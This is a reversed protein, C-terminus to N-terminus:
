TWWYENTGCTNEDVNVLKKKKEGCPSFRYHIIGASEWNNWIRWNRKKRWRFPSVAGSRISTPIELFSSGRRLGFKTSLRFQSRTQCFLSHFFALLSLLEHRWEWYTWYFISRFSYCIVFFYFFPKIRNSTTDEVISNVVQLLQSMLPRLQLRCNSESCCFFIPCQTSLQRECERCWRHIRVLCYWPRWPIRTPSDILTVFNDLILNELRNIKIKRQILENVRYVKRYNIFM